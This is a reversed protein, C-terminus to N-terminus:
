DPNRAVRHNTGTGATRFGLWLLKDMVERQPLGSNQQNVVLGGPNGDTGAYLPGRPSTAMSSSPISVEKSVNRM